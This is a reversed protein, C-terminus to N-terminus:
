RLSVCRKNYHKPMCPICAGPQGYPIGSCTPMQKETRVGGAKIWYQYALFPWGGFVGCDGYEVGDTARVGEGNDCEVLQEVSLDELDAGKSALARQGEVNGVASFAWCSGMAGQDKVSTVAKTPATRWDWSPPAAPLSRPSSEALLGAARAPRRAMKPMRAGAFEEFTLAAFPSEDLSFEAGPGYAANLEDVVVANQAFTALQAASPAVLQPQHVAAWAAFRSRTSAEDSVAAARVNKCTSFPGAITVKMVCDKPVCCSGTPPAPPPGIMCCTEGAGTCQSDEGCPNFHVENAEALTCSLLLLLALM